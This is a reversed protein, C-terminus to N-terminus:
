LIQTTKGVHFVCNRGTNSSSDQKTFELCCKKHHSVCEIEPSIGGDWVGKGSLLGRLSCPIRNLQRFKHLISRSERLVASGNFKTAMETFYQLVEVADMKKEMCTGGYLTVMAVCIQEYIYISTIVFLKSLKEKEM